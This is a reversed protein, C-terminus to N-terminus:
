RISGGLYVFVYVFTWILAQYLWFIKLNALGYTVRLTVGGVAVRALMVAIWLLGIAVHLAHAAMLTFFISLFGSRQPVIGRAALGAADQWEMGIFGIGILLSVALGVMLGRTRGHKLAVMAFGYALVSAFLVVTEVYGHVPPAVDRAVPGGAASARDNLVGYSAFLGAFILSDGLMYLWFGLLHTSMIDHEHDSQDWLLADTGEGSM